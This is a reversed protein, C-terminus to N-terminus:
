TPPTPCPRWQRGSCAQPLLHRDGGSRYHELLARAEATDAKSFAKYAKGRAKLRLLRYYWRADGSFTAYQSKLKGLLIEASDPRVECLSDAVALQRPYDPRGCSLLTLM